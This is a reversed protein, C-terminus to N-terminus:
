FLHCVMECVSLESPVEDLCQLAEENCFYGCCNFSCFYPILCLAAFCGVALSTGKFAYFTVCYFGEERIHACTSRQKSVLVPSSNM